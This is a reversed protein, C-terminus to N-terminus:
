EAFIKREGQLIRDRLLLNSVELIVLKLCVTLYLQGLLIRVPQNLESRWKMQFATRM